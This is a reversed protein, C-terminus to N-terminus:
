LNTDFATLGYEKAFTNANQPESVDKKDYRIVVGINLLVVIMLFSWMFAPQVMFKPLPAYRQQMTSIRANLRTQFFPRPEARRIGELAEVTEEIQREIEEQNKM